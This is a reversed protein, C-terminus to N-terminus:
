PEAPLRRHLGRDGPWAVMGAGDGDPRAAVPRRLGGARPGGRVGRGDPDRAAGRAARLFAGAGAAVRAPAARPGAGPTCRATRNARAAGDPLSRQAAPERVARPRGGPRASSAGRAAGVATRPPLAPLPSLDGGGAGALGLLHVDL